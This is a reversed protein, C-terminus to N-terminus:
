LLLGGAGTHCRQHHLGAVVGPSCDPREAAVSVPPNYQYMYEHHIVHHIVCYMFPLHLTYVVQQLSM